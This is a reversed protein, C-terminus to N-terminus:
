FVDVIIMFSFRYIYFKRKIKETKKKDGFYLIIFIMVKSFELLTM